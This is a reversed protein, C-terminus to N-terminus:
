MERVATVQEVSPEVWTTATATALASSIWSAAYSKQWSSPTSRVMWADTVATTVSTEKDEALAGSTRWTRWPTDGPQMVIAGRAQEVSHAVCSLMVNDNEVAITSTDSSGATGSASM